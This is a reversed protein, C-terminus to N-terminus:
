ATKCIIQFMGILIELQKGSEYHETIPPLLIPIDWNIQLVEQNTENKRGIVTDKYKHIISFNCVTQLFPLFVGLKGDFTGFKQKNVSEMIYQLFQQNCRGQGSRFLGINRSIISSVNEQICEVLYMRRSVNEQICEGLYM